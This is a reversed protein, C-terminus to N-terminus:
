PKSPLNASQKIAPQETEMESVPEWREVRIGNEIAARLIWAKGSYTDLKFVGSETKTESISYNGGFLIFRATNITSTINQAGNTAYAIVATLMALVVLGWLKWRSKM